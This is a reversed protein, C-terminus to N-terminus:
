CGKTIEVCTNGRLKDDMWKDKFVYGKGMSVLQQRKRSRINSSYDTEDNNNLSLKQEKHKQLKVIIHVKALVIERGILKGFCM